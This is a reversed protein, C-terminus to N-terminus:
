WRGRLGLSLGGGPAPGLQLGTQGGVEDQIDGTLWLVVGTTVLAAGAAYGAYMVGAWARSRDAAAQDDGFSRNYDDGAEAAQWTAVGGLALLGVGGWFTVHGWTRHPASARVRVTRDEKLEISTMGAVEKLDPPEVLMTGVHYPEGKHTLQVVVGGHPTLAEFFYDIETTDLDAPLEFVVKDAGKVPKTLKRDEGRRPLYRLRVSHVLGYLDVELNITLRLGALNEGSRVRPPDHWLSLARSKRTMAVARYFADTIKPSLQDSVEADLDIALLRLFAELAQERQGLASLCLGKLKYAEALRDPADVPAHLVKEALALSKNFKMFEFLHRARKLEDDGRAAGPALLLMLWIVATWRM